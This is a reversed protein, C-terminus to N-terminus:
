RDPLTLRSLGQRLRALREDDWEITPDPELLASAISATGLAALSWEHRTAAGFPSAQTRHTALDLMSLAMVVLGRMTADLLAALTQFTAGSEPSLRYGFLGAL